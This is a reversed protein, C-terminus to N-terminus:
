RNKNKPYLGYRALFRHADLKENRHARDKTRLNSAAWVVGGGDKACVEGRAAEGEFETLGDGQLWTMADNVSGFEKTVTHGDHGFLKAIFM